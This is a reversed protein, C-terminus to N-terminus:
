FVSSWVTMAGLDTKIGAIPSFISATQTNSGWLIGALWAKGTAAEYSFVPSGSDGSRAVGSFLYQCRLLKSSAIYSDVCTQQVTGGTWGSTVGVKSLATGQLLSGSSLEGVVFWPDTTLQFSGSQTWDSGTYEFTTRAITYNSCAVITDCKALSADSYRCTYGSPCGSGSTFSPDTIETAVYYNSQLLPQGIQTGDVAGFTSTCHANTVVYRLAGTKKAKFGLTCASGTTSIQLGGHVPRVASGLYDTTQRFPAVVETRFGKDPIGLDRARALVIGATNENEVGFRVINAREDLDVTQLGDIPGVDAFADRWQALQQFTFDVPAIRVSRGRVMPEEGFLRMVTARAQDSQALDALQIVVLGEGDVFIGGFAPAERAAELFLEDLSPGAPTPEPDFTSDQSTRLTLPTNVSVGDDPSCAVQGFAVGAFLALSVVRSANKKPPPM